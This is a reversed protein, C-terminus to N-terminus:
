LQLSYAYYHFFGNINTLTRAPTICDVCYVVTLVRYLHANTRANQTYNEQDEADQVNSQFVQTCSICDSDDYKIM